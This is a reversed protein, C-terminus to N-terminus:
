FNLLPRLPIVVYKILIILVPQHALYVPLSHRGFFSIVASSKNQIIAPIGFQRQGDKYLINGIVIGFLVIGLWPFLPFYDITHKWSDSQHFGVILQIITPNEIIVTRIALGLLMVILAFASCVLITYRKIQLFPISIIISLGICHLVGFLIPRDPMFVLTIISLGMGINFIKLGWKFQELPTKRATMIVLCIGVLMFFSSAFIKNFQYVDNNLPYVQFFDLDWLLHLFIMIFIVVGRAIDLEAFRPLRENM